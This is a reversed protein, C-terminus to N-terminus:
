SWWEATEQGEQGFNLLLTGDIGHPVPFSDRASTSERRCRMVKCVLATFTPPFM